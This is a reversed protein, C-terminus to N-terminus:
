QKKQFSHTRESLKWTQCSDNSWQNSLFENYHYSQSACHIQIRSNLVAVCLSVGLSCLTLSKTQNSYVAKDTCSKIVKWQADFLYVGYANIHVSFFHPSVHLFRIISSKFLHVVSLPSTLSCHSDLVIWLACVSSLLESIMSFLTKKKKKKYYKNCDSDEWIVSSM